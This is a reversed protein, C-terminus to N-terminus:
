GLMLIEPPFSFHYLDSESSHSGLLSSKVSYNDSVRSARAVAAKDLLEAVVVGEGIGCGDLDVLLLSLLPDSVASLRGLGYSGDELLATDDVSIPLLPRM